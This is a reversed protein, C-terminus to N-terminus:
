IKPHPSGQSGYTCLSYMDEMCPLRHADAYSHRGLICAGQHESCKPAIKRWFEVPYPMEMLIWMQALSIGESVGTRFVWKLLMAKRKILLALSAMTSQNSNSVKELLSQDHSLRQQFLVSTGCVTCILCTRFFGNQTAAASLSNWGSHWWSFVSSPLSM